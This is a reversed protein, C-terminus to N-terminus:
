QQTRTNIVSAEKKVIKSIEIINLIPNRLEHCIKKIINAFIKDLIIKKQSDDSKIEDFDIEDFFEIKYLKKTTSNDISKISLRNLCNRVSSRNRKIFKLSNKKERFNIEPLINDDIIDNNIKIKPIDLSIENLNMPNKTKFKIEDSNRKENSINLKISCNNCSNELESNKNEEKIEELLYNNNLKNNPFNLDKLITNRLDEQDQTKFLSNKPTIKNNKKFIIEINNSYQNKRIFVNEKCNENKLSFYKMPNRIGM